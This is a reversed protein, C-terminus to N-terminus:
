LGQQLQNKSWFRWIKSYLGMYLGGSSNSKTSPISLCGASAECHLAILWLYFFSKAFSMLFTLNPKLVSPIFGKVM